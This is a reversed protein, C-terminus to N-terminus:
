NFCDKICCCSKRQRTKISYIQLSLLRTGIKTINAYFSVIYVCIFKYSYVILLEQKIRFSFYYNVSFQHNLKDQSRILDLVSNQISILDGQTTSRDVAKRSGFVPVVM